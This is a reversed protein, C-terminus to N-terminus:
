EISWANEIHKMKSADLLIADFRFEKGECTKENKQIFIEAAAFTRAKQRDSIAEYAYKMKQRFKVEIFVIINDKQVIIDIEGLPTKYRHKLIKYGCSILFNIVNLESFYGKSFNTM